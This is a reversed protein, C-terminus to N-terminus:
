AFVWAGYGVVRARDGATDGSNCLALRRAKLQHGAAQRLLGAVPLFGCANQPGLSEWEGQEIASATAADLRQATAYDHYHSLDSSVVILTEDSGWLRALVEGVEEPQAHGVVLPVLVFNKLLMQLFPLEVELAHEPVHPADDARVWPLDRVAALAAQDLSVRGLPTDFADATALAVGRFSVYHAPGIVMVRTIAALAKKAAAFAIGAIKGSYMYGAHPAILAKPRPGDYSPAADIFNQVELALRRADGTYFHGAVAPPRVSGSVKTQRM